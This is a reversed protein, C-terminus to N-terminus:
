ITFSDRWIQWNKASARFNRLLLALDDSVFL